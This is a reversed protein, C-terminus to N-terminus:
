DHPQEKHRHYEEFEKQLDDLKWGKREMLDSIKIAFEAYIGEEMVSRDIRPHTILYFSVVNWLYGYIKLQEPTLDERKHKAEFSM